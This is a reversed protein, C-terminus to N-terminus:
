QCPKGGQTVERQSPWLRRTIQVVQQGDQWDVPLPRGQRLAAYHELVLHTMSAPAEARKLALLVVNRVTQMLPWLNGMVTYIGRAVAKPGKMLSLKTLTMNHVDMKVTARSGHVSVLLDDPKASLTLNISITCYNKGRLLLRAEDDCLYPHRGSRFVHCSQLQVEENVLGLAISLPHPMLDELLGGPLEMAWTTEGVNAPLVHRFRRIDFGWFVDIHVLEGLAGSDILRRARVVRPDLAYNHDVGVTVGRSRAAEAIRECEQESVVMPKELLVHCGHGIAELALRAHSEPPTLVHVVQPRAQEYFEGADDTALPIGHREALGRAAELNRDLVGTVQVGAIQKLARLHFEAMRGAGIIGVRDVAVPERVMLPVLSTALGTELNHVPVWGTAERLAACGYYCEVMRSAVKKPSIRPLWAM